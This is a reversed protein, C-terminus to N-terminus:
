NINLTSPDVSCYKGFTSTHQAPEDAIAFVRYATKYSKYADIRAPTNIIHATLNHLVETPHSLGDSVYAFCRTAANQAVSASQISVKESPSALVAQQIAMALDRLSMQIRPSHFNTSIWIQVDDRLGDKDSDIGELTAKGAEGPDPPLTDRIKLQKENTIIIEPEAQSITTVNFSLWLYTAGVITIVCITIIGVYKKM